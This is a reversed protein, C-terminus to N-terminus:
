EQGQEQHKGSEQRPEQPKEEKLVVVPIDCRTKFEEADEATGVIKGWHMPIAVRPKIIKAAMAAARADMTYTGGIPLLAIDADIDNMEPILDTDGAHYIRRGGVDLVFGVYGKDKPHFKKNQNYAPVVEVHTGKVVITDGTMITQFNEISEPAKDRVCDISVVVTSPKLIAEIDDPSFHDSHDHTILIIDAPPVDGPLDYPDIYINKGDEILFAAHGFWRIGELLSDVTSESLKPAGKVKTSDEPYMIADDYEIEEDLDPGYSDYSEDIDGEDIQALLIQRDVHLSEEASSVGAPTSLAVVVALIMLASGTYPRV